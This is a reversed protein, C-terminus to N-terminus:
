KVLLKAKVQSEAVLKCKNGDAYEIFPLSGTTM